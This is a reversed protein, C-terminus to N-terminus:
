FAEMMKPFPVSIADVNSEDTDPNVSLIHTVAILVKKVSSIMALTVFSRAKVLYSRSLERSIGNINIIYPRPAPCNERPISLTIKVSDPSSFFEYL